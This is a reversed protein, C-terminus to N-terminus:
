TEGKSWDRLDTNAVRILGLGTPDFIGGQSPFGGNVAEPPGVARAKASRSKALVCNAHWKWFNALDIVKLLELRVFYLLHLIERSVTGHDSNSGKGDRAQM